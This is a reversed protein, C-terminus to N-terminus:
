SPDAFAYLNVAGFLTRQTDLYSLGANEMLHNTWDDGAPLYTLVRKVDAFSFFYEVFTKIINVYTNRLELDPSFITRFAYDGERTDAYMFVENIAANGIDLQCVPQEDKLCILSQSHDSQLVDIYCQMLETRPGGDQWYRSEMQRDLWEYVTEMDTAVCLHRISLTYEEESFTKAFVPQRRQYPDIAKCLREFSM